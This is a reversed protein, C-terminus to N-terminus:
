LIRFLHIALTVTGALILITGSIVIIIGCIETIKEFM